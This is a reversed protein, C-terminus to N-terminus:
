VSSVQVYKRVEPAEVVIDKLLERAATVHSSKSHAELHSLSEWEEIMVFRLPDSLDKHLDYKICGAEKHTEEIMHKTASIIPAVEGDYPKVKFFALVSVKNSM